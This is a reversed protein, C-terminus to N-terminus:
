REEPLDNELGLAVRGRRLADPDEYAPRATVGLEERLEAAPDRPTAASPKSLNKAAQSVCLASFAEAAERRAELTM